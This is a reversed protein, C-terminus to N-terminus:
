QPLSDLDIKLKFRKKGNARPPKQLNELEKQLRGGDRVVALYGETAERAMKKCDSLTEGFTFIRENELCYVEMLGNESPVLEYTLNITKM